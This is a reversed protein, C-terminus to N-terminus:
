FRFYLMAIRVRNHVDGTLWYTSALVRVYELAQTTLSVCYRMTSRKAKM